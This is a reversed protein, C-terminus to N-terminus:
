LEPLGAFSLMRSFRSRTEDGSFAVSIERAEAERRLVLCLQMGSLDFSTVQEVRVTVPRGFELAAAFQRHVQAVTDITLEGAIEVAVSETRPEHHIDVHSEPM